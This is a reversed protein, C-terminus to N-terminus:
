HYQYMLVNFHEKKGRTMNKGRSKNTSRFWINSYLRSDEAPKRRVLEWRYMPAPRSFLVIIILNMLTKSYNNRLRNTSSGMLRRLVLPVHSGPFSPSMVLYGETKKFDGVKQRCMQQFINKITNCMNFSSLPFGLDPTTAHLQWHNVVCDDACTSSLHISNIWPHQSYSWGDGAGGPIIVVIQHHVGTKLVM